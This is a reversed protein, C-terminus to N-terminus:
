KKPTNNQDSENKKAKIYNQDELSLNEVEYRFEKGGEKTFRVFEGEPTIVLGILKARIVKGDKNKWDRMMPEGTFIEKAKASMEILSEEAKDVIIKQSVVAQDIIERKPKNYLMWISIIMLLLAWAKATIFLFCHPRKLVIEEEEDSEQDQNAVKEYTTAGSKFSFILVFFAGVIHGVTVVRSSPIVDPFYRDFFYIAIVGLMWLIPILYGKRTWLM